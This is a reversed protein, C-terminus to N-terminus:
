SKACLYDFSGKDDFGSPITLAPETTEGWGDGCAEADGVTKYDSNECAGKTPCTVAAANPLSSVTTTHTMVACAYACAAVNTSDACNMIGGNNEYYYLGCGNYLCYCNKDNSNCLSGSTGYTCPSQIWRGCLKVAPLGAISLQYNIISLALILLVKKM